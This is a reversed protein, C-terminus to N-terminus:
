KPHNGLWRALALGKPVCYLFFFFFFSVSTDNKTHPRISGFSVVCCEIRKSHRIFWLWAWPNNWSLVTITQRISKHTHTHVRVRVTPYISHQTLIGMLLSSATRSIRYDRTISISHERSNNTRLLLKVPVVVRSLSSISSKHTHTTLCSIVRCSGCFSLYREM